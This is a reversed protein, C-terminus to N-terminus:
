SSFPSISGADCKGELYAATNKRYADLIWNFANKIENQHNLFDDICDNVRKLQYSFIRPPIYPTQVPQKEKINCVLHGILKKDAIVFGLEESHVLFKHLYSIYEGTKSCQISQSIDNFIKPFRFLENLAINNLSCVKAIKVLLQFHTKASQYSGPFFNPHYLVFIMAQKVLSLNIQNLGQKGFNYGAYGFASFDWKNDGYFSLDNGFQDVSVAWDDPPPFCPPRYIKSNASVLTTKYLFKLNKM